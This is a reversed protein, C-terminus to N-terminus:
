NNFYENINVLNQLHKTKNLSIKILKNDMEQYLLHAKKIFDTQPLLKNMSMNQHNKMFTDIQRDLKYVRSLLIKEKDSLDQKYM